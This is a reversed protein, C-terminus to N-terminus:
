SCTLHQSHIFPFGWLGFIETWGSLCKEHPRSRSANVEGRVGGGLKESPVAKHLGAPGSSHFSIGGLPVPLGWRPGTRAPLQGHPRDGCSCPCTVPLPLWPRGPLLRQMLLSHQSPRTGSVGLISQRQFVLWRHTSSHQREPLLALHRFSLVCASRSCFCCKRRAQTGRRPSTHQNRLSFVSVAKIM